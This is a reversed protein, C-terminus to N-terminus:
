SAAWGYFLWGSQRTGVRAKKLVERTTVHLTVNLKKASVTAEVLGAGGVRRTMSVIEMETPNSGHPLHAALNARAEAQSKYGRDWSYNANRGDARNVFFRTETAGKTAAAAVRVDVNRVPYIAVSGVEGVKVDLHRAAVKKLEDASTQDARIEMEIKHSTSPGYEADFEEILAIAECAEWKSLNDIHEDALKHAAELTMPTASRLRVGNTTAVTGSYADVGHEWRAQDCVAEYADKYSVPAAPNFRHINHFSHSGM